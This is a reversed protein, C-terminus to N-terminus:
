GVKVSYSLNACIRLSWLSPLIKEKSTCHIMDWSNPPKGSRNSPKLIKMGLALTPAPHSPPATVGLPSPMVVVEAVEAVVGVKCRGLARREM